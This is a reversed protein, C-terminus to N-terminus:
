HSILHPVSVWSHQMFFVAHVHRCLIQPLIGQREHRMGSSNVSNTSIFAVCWDLGASLILSYLNLTVVRNVIVNSAGLTNTIQMFNHLQLSAGVETYNNVIGQFFTTFSLSQLPSAFTLLCFYWYTEESLVGVQQAKKIVDDDKIWIQRINIPLQGQCLHHLRYIKLLIHATM